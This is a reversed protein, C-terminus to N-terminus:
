VDDEEHSSSTVATTEETDKPELENARENVAQSASRLLRAFVDTTEEMGKAFGIQLEDGAAKLRDLAANLDKQAKKKRKRLERQKKRLARKERFTM